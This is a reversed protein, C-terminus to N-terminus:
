SKLTSIIYVGKALRAHMAVQVGLLIMSELEIRGIMQGGEM